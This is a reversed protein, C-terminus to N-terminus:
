AQPKIRYAYLPWLWPDFDGDDKWGKQSLWQITLGCRHAMLIPAREEDKLQQWPTSPVSMRPEM